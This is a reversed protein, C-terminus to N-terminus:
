GEASVIEVFDDIAKARAVDFELVGDLSIEIEDVFTQRAMAFRHFFEALAADQEIAGWAFTLAQQQLDEALVGDARDEKFEDLALAIFAKAFAIEFREELRDFEVLDAAAHQLCASIDVNRVAANIRAVVASAALAVAWGACRQDITTCPPAPTI